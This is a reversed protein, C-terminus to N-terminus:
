VTRSVRDPEWQHRRPTMGTTTGITADCQRAANVQAASRDAPDAAANWARSIGAITERLTHICSTDAGANTRPDECRDSITSSAIIPDTSTTRRRLPPPATSSMGLSTTQSSTNIGALSGNHLSSTERADCQSPSTQTAARPQPSTWRPGITRVGHDDSTHKAPSPGPSTVTSPRLNTPM